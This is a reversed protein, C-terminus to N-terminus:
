INYILTKVVVENEGGWNVTVTILAEDLNGGSGTAPLKINIKRTFNTEPTGDFGYFKNSDQHLIGNPYDTINRIEGKVTDIQCNNGNLCLSFASLGNWDPRNNVDMHNMSTQDRINKIYEIADQALYSAIMQNKSYSASSLGKQAITIPATVAVMLISIAVLAELLTFGSKFCTQTSGKNNKINFGIM